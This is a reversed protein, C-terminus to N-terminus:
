LRIAYSNRISMSRPNFLFQYLIETLFLHFDSFAIRALFDLDLQLVIDMVKDMLGIVTRQVKKFVCVNIFFNSLFVIDRLVKFFIVEAIHTLCISLM